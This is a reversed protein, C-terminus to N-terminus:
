PLVGGLAISLMTTVGASVPAFAAIAGGGLGALSGWGFIKKLPLLDLLGQRGRRRAITQQIKASIAGETVDSMIATDLIVAFGAMEQQMSRAAESQALLEEAQRRSEDPWKALDAGWKLLGEDFDEHTM